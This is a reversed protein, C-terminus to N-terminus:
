PGFPNEPVPGPPPPPAASAARPPTGGSPVRAEGAAPAPPRRPAVISPAGGSPPAATEPSATGADAVDVPGGDSGAVPHRIPGGFPGNAPGAFPDGLGDLGEGATDGSGAPISLAFEMVAGAVVTVSATAASAGEPTRAELSYAGPPLELVTRGSPNLAMRRVGDIWLDGHRVDSVVRVEVPPAPVDRTPAPAVLGHDGQAEGGGFSLRPGGWGLSVVVYAVAALVLVLLGVAVWTWRRNPADEAAVRARRRAYPDSKVDSGPKPGGVKIGTERPPLSSRTDPSDPLPYQQYAVRTTDDPPALDAGRFDAVIVTINDHGGGARAMEILTACCARPDAVTALVDKIMEGHVLGSLGDSCVMVRDGRKLELFTLDVTVQEATGLAQLIINSHEFAEAEEETLQGAEILQNVLSQDKTILAFDKGGRLAYARSDGVQGVFLIKDVVGVVTSTTGMGRRTRDMKAASFIRSGAEEVASVLRRAFDDRSEPAGGTTMIDHLTDVAMQSAVEGAAAGGMGDCVVFLSGRPGITHKLLREDVGRVNTSLDVLLFNDENHERVLGVDTQGYLHVHIGPAKDREDAIEVELSVSAVPDTPRQARASADAPVESSAAAESSEEASVVPDEPEEASVAAEASVEASVVAEPPTAASPTATPLVPAAREAGEAGPAAVADTKSEGESM